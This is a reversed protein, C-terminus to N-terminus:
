DVIDLHNVSSGFGMSGIAKGFHNKAKDVVKDMLSPKSKVPLAVPFDDFEESYGVSGHYAGYNYTWLDLLMVGCSCKASKLEKDITFGETPQVVKKCSHCRRIPRNM